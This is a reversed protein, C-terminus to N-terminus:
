LASDQKSYEWSPYLSQYIYNTLLSSAMNMTPQDDCYGGPLSWALVVTENDVMGKVRATEQTIPPPPEARGDCDVRPPYPKAGETVMYNQLTPAWDDMFQVQERDTKLARFAEANDPAMFLDEHGEFAKLIAPWSEELPLDGVVVITFYEPRYNDEVYEQVKELTLNGLTEHSGITSRAYPHDSPFLAAGLADWASGVAANEYRMRLENRAIEAETTVHEQTVNRVGHVMRLAEIRLLPILSDVPAITMYNTWDVSTSANITGGLQKILDWNKPLMEGGEEHQARFALHEVVHAIGDMDEQDHESGRDIASTIAVIPQSSEQQFIIRLGSPFRYDRLGIDYADLQLAYSAEPVKDALAM